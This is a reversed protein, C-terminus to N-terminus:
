KSGLNKMILLYDEAREIDRLHGKVFHGHGATIALLKPQGEAVAEVAAAGRLADMWKASEYAYVQKDNLATRCLVRVGPAGEAGLGSIPSHRLLFEFDALRRAPDGFELYEFATLPLSPNSATRLVDVYPVEVYAGGFLDGMPHRVIAAGVLYGGASRGFVVTEGVGVGAAGQM